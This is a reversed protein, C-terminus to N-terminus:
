PTDGRGIGLALRYLVAARTIGEANDIVHGMYAAVMPWGYRAIVKQLEEVGKQNVAVQTKLDAANVDPAARRIAAAASCPAFSPRESGADAGAGPRARSAPVPRGTGHRLGVARRCVAPMRGAYLHILITGIGLEDAVLCAHQGGPAASANSRSIRWIM